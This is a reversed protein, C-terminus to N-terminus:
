TYPPSFPRLLFDKEKFKNIRGRWSFRKAWCALVVAPVLASAASAVSVQLGARLAGPQM